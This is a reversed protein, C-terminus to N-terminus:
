PRGTKPLHLTTLADTEPDIWQYEIGDYEPAFSDTRQESGPLKNRHNFLLVSDEEEREFFLRIVSGRRYANCFVADAIMSVIEEFSLGEKDITYDFRAVDVGFYDRIEQATQYFNDFDVQTPPRNGIKPDLCVAALIDAVNTTPRLDASFSGDSLRVPLKRTVLMNLKREKVALAGDTAFTVAQVTTVDGFHREEVETCAYLDRWKVEDIVQGLILYRQPTM